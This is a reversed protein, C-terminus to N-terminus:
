PENLNNMELLSLQAYEELYSDNSKIESIKDEVPQRGNKAIQRNLEEEVEKYLGESKFIDFAVDRQHSLNFRYKRM